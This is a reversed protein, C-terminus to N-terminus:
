KLLLLLDTALQDRCNERSLGLHASEELVLVELDHVLSVGREIETTRNFLAVVLEDTELSDVAVDFQQVLVESTHALQVDDEVELLGVEDEILEKQSSFHLLRALLLHQFRDRRLIQQLLLLSRLSEEFIMAESLDVVTSGRVVLWVMGYGRLM